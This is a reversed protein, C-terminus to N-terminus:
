LIMSYLFQNLTTFILNTFCEELAILYVLHFEVLTRSIKIGLIMDAPGLDKM